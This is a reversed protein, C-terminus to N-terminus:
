GHGSALNVINTETNSEKVLAIFQEEPSPKGYLYGQFEDCGLIRLAQAQSETEVGEAISNMRLSQALMVISRVVADADESIGMQRVFSIDIKIHDFPLKVLYSLASYGTGFDDMALTIGEDHYVNCSLNLM